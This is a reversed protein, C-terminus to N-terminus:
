WDGFVEQGLPEAFVGVGVVWFDPAFRHRRADQDSAVARRPEAHLLHGGGPGDSLMTESPGSRRGRGLEWGELRCLVGRATAGDVASRRQGAYGM